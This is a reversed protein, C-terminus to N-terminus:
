DLLDTGRNNEPSVHVVDNAITRQINLIPPLSKFFSSNQTVTRNDTARQATIM